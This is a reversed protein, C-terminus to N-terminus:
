MNQGYSRERTEHCYQLVRRMHQVQLQPTQSAKHHQYLTVCKINNLSQVDANSVSDLKYFFNLYM